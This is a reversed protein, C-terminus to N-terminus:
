MDIHTLTHTCAGFVLGSVQRQRESTMFSSMFIQQLAQQQQIYIFSHLSYESKTKRHMNCTGLPLHIMMMKPWFTVNARFWICSSVYTYSYIYICSHIHMHTHFMIKYKSICCAYLTLWKNKCDRFQKSLM